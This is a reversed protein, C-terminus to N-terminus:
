NGCYIPDGDSNVGIKVNDNPNGYTVKDGSLNFIGDNMHTIVICFDGKIGLKQKLENYDEQLLQELSENLIVKGSFLQPIDTDTNRTKDLKANLNEADRRLELNGLPSTAVLTYVIVIIILFLIVGIIIDMSWAQAKLNKKMKEKIGEKKPM